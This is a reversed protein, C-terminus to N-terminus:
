TVPDLLCPRVGTGSLELRKPSSASPMEFREIFLCHRGARYDLRSVAANSWHEVPGLHLHFCRVRLSTLKRKTQSDRILPFKISASCGAQEYQCAIQYADRRENNIRILKLEVHSCDDM